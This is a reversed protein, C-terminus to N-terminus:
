PIMLQQLQFVNSSADVHQTDAFVQQANGAITSNHGNVEPNYSLNMFGNSFINTLNELQEDIIDSLETPIRGENLVYNVGIQNNVASIVIRAVNHSGDAILPITIGHIEPLVIESAINNVVGGIDGIESAVNKADVLSDRAVEAREEAEQNQSRQAEARIKEAIELYRMQHIWHEGSRANSYAKAKSDIIRVINEIMDFM